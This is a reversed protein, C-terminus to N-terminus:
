ACLIETVEYKVFPGLLSLLPFVYDEAFPTPLVPKDSTSFLILGRGRM